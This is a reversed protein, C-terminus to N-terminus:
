ALSGKPVHFRRSVAAEKRVQGPECADMAFSRVRLVGNSVVSRVDNYRSYANSGAVASQPNCPM